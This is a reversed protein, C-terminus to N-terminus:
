DNIITWTLFFLPVRIEFDLYSKRPWSYSNWKIETKPYNGVGVGCSQLMHYVSIDTQEENGHWKAIKQAKPGKDGKSGEQKGKKRFKSEPEEIWLTRKHSLYKLKLKRVSFFKPFIMWVLTTWYTNQYMNIKLINKSENVKQIEFWPM